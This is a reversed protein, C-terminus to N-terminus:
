QNRRAQGQGANERHSPPQMLRFLLTLEMQPLQCERWLYGTALIQLSAQANNDLSPNTVNMPNADTSILPNGIDAPRSPITGNQETTNKNFMDSIFSRLEAYEGPQEEKVEVKEKANRKKRKRVKNDPLVTRMVPASTDEIGKKIILRHKLRRRQLRRHERNRYIKSEPASDTEDGATDGYHSESSSSRKAYMEYGKEIGPYEHPKFDRYDDYNLNIYQLHKNAQATSKEIIDLKNKNSLLQECEAKLESWTSLWTLAKIRPVNLLCALDNRVAESLHTLSDLILSPAKTADYNTANLIKSGSIAHLANNCVVLHPGSSPGPRGEDSEGLPWVKKAMHVVYSYLEETPNMSFATLVCERTLEPYDNLLIGLFLYRPAIKKEREMIKSADVADDYKKTEM